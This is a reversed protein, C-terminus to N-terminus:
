LSRGKEEISENNSYLIDLYKDQKEQGVFTLLNQNISLVLQIIDDDNRLDESGIAFYSIDVQLLKMFETKNNIQEINNRNKRNKDINLWLTELVEPDELLRKDALHEYNTSINLLEILEKKDYIIRQNNWDEFFKNTSQVVSNQNIEDINSCGSYIKECSYPLSSIVSTLKSENKRIEEIENIQQKIKSEEIYGNRLSMDVLSYYIEYFNTRPNVTKGNSDEKYHKKYFQELQNSKIAILDESFGYENSQLLQYMKQKAYANAKFEIMFDDHLYEYNIGPHSTMYKFIEIDILTLQDYPNQTENSISYQRVHELEHFIAEMIQYNYEESSNLNYMQSYLHLQFKKNEDDVMAGAYSTSPVISVNNFNDNLGMRSKEEMYFYMIMSPTMRNNNKLCENLLHQGVSEGNIKKSLVQYFTKMYNEDFVDTIEMQIIMKDLKLLYDKIKEINNSGNLNNLEVSLKNEQPLLNYIKEQEDQSLKPLISNIIPMSISINNSNKILQSLYIFMESKKMEAAVDSKLIKQKLKEIRKTFNELEENEILNALHCKYENSDGVLNMSTILVNEIKIIEKEIKDLQKEKDFEIKQEYLDLFLNQISIIYKATDKIEQSHTGSYEDLLDCLEIFKDSNGDFNEIKDFLKDSNAEFYANILEGDVLFNDILSAMMVNFVYGSFSGYAKNTLYETIGENLAKGGYLLSKDSNYLLSAEEIGSNYDINGNEDEIQNVINKRDTSCFHLGEHILCEKNYERLIIKNEKPLYAGRSKYDPSIEFKFNKINELFLKNNFNPIKEVFISSLKKLIEKEAVGINANEIEDYIKNLTVDNIDPM